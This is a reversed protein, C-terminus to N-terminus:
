WNEDTAKNDRVYAALRAHEKELADESSRSALPVALLVAATLLRGTRRM